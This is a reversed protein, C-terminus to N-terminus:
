SSENAGRLILPTLMCLSLSLSLTFPCNCGTREICLTTCVGGPPFGLRIIGAEGEDDGDDDERSLLNNVAQNM